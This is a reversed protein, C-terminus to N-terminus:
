KFGRGQIIGDKTWHAGGGAPWQISKYDWGSMYNPRPCNRWLTGFVDQAPYYTTQGLAQAIENIGQMQGNGADDCGIKWGFKIYRDIADKSSWGDWMMFTAEWFGMRGRGGSDHVLIREGRKLRVVIDKIMAELIEPSYATDDLIQYTSIYEMGLSYVLSKEGLDGNEINQRIITTFRNDRLCKWATISPQASRALGNRITWAFNPIGCFEIPYTYSFIYPQPTPTLTPLITLQGTPTLTPLITLQGTPTLTPLITLQGTPTRAPVPKCGILSFFLSIFLAVMYKHNHPILGKKIFLDQIWTFRLM